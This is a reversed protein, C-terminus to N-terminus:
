KKSGLKVVFYYVLAGILGLLVIVLIWIIKDNEQKFKRQACDIIMWIWFVILLVALAFMVMTFIMIFLTLGAMAAGAGSPVHQAFVAPIAALSGLISSIKKM